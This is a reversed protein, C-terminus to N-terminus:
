RGTDEFYEGGVRMKMEDELGKLIPGAPMEPNGGDPGGIAMMDDDNPGIEERDGMVMDEDVDSGGGM